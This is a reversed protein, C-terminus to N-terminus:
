FRVAAGILWSDFDDGTYYAALVSFNENFYKQSRVGYATEDADALELGISFTRDIYYDIAAEVLDESEEFDDESDPAQSYGFELNLAHGDTLELVYKLDFNLEYDVEDSWTTTVRFGEIPTLGATIGWDNDSGEFYEGADYSSYTYYPAIYLMAQPIYIEVEGVVSDIDVYDTESQGYSLSINNSRELFAAEALPHGETNVPSFHFEGGILITDVEGDFDQYAALVEASYDAASISSAFSLALAGSLKKIKM